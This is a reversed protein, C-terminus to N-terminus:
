STRVLIGNKLTFVVEMKQAVEKCHTSVILGMSWKKQCLMIMQMLQQSSQNDLNGTPEDALLFDPETILARILAVRQRQGGSLAGIQWTSVPLLNLFTLYKQAKQQAEEPSVGLLEAGLTINELVTLETILTPNQVVLSIHKARQASSLSCLSRKELFISGSTPIDLGAFLHMLTSKGSGSEGMVAYSSGKKFSVSLNSFINKQKFTKKLKSALLNIAKNMMVKSCFFPHKSVRSMM